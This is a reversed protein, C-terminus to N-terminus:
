LQLYDILKTFYASKINDDPIGPSHVHVYIFSNPLLKILGADQPYNKKFVTYNQKHSM